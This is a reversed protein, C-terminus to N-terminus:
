STHESEHGWEGNEKKLSDTLLSHSPLVCQKAGWGELPSASSCPFGEALCM